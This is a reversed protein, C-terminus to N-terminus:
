GPRTRRQQRQKHPSPTGTEAYHRLDDALHWSTRRTQALIVWRGLLGLVGRTDFRARLSVRCRHADIPTVTWTNRALAVFAPMGSAQYTLTRGADDYAILTEAVEPVLRIGTRCVRGVVPADIAVAVPLRPGDCTAADAASRATPPNTIATSTPIATAWDGIRDFGPGIVEWVHDAPAAVILDTCLETMGHAHGDGAEAAIGPSPITTAWTPQSVAATM